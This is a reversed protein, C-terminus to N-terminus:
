DPMQEVLRAVEAWQPSGAKKNGSGASVIASAILRKVSGDFARDAFDRILHKKSAAETATTYYLAPYREEGRRVLGKKEMIRVLTQTTAYTTPKSKKLELSIERISIGARRWLVNLIALEADTPRSPKQRAM